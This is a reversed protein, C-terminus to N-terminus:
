QNPQSHAYDDDDDDSDDEDDDDNLEDPGALDTATPPFYKRYCQVDTGSKPNSVTLM